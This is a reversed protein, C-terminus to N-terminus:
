RSSNSHKGYVIRLKEITSQEAPKVKITYEKLGTNCKVLVNDHKCDSYRATISAALEILLEEKKTGQLLVVPSGYNPVELWYDDENKLGLLLKNEQENRGVIIKSNEARFHRGIKLLEVDRWIIKPKWKFLDKLKAAFEKQTLLCGGSPAGWGTINLQKILALQRKRSRGKIDLLKERDVFGRIEPETKPLLKASLPRLVKGELGAEREILLLTKKHQSMPRQGLVEGTVIFDAISKKMLEKAKKLMHIRCDVCPNLASGYGYKPNRIIELYEEGKSIVKLPIKMNKAVELAHCKGGSDCLCFPSTFKIGLIDIGQEQLLKAALTSDLGGSLLVLGRVTRKM